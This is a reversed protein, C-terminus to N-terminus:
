GEGDLGADADALRFADGSRHRVRRRGRWVTVRARGHVQWSGNRGVVAAERDIGLVPVGRPARMALLAMVAEPRADYAPLVVVGGAAALGEPWRLPWGLRLGLDLQREGLIMAGASCGVLIAGRDNAAHAAGWVASDRLSARLHGSRNGCFYIVDAEGVAQANAPDDAAARDRVQVAEVEAGLGRFHELGLTALRQFAEEGEPFAGTPVIAVRPRRRGTARLLGLDFEAMSALFEGGGVLAVPGSM